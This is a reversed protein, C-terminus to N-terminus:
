GHVDYEKWPIANLPVNAMFKAIDTRGYYTPRGSADQAMLIVPLGPFFRSFGLQASTAQRHDQLVHRQVVVVAFKVGQEELAVGQFRM